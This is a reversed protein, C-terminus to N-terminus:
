NVLQHTGFRASMALAIIHGTAIVGSSRGFRLRLSVNHSSEPLNRAELHFLTQFKIVRGTRHSAISPGTGSPFTARPGHFESGTVESAATLTHRLLIHDEPHTLNKNCHPFWLIVPRPLRRYSPYTTTACGSGLVQPQGLSRRGILAKNREQM